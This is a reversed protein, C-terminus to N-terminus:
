LYLLFGDSIQEFIIKLSIDDKFFNYSIIWKNFLLLTIILILINININEYNNNM